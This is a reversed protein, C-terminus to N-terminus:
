SCSSIAYILYNFEYIAAYKEGHILYIQFPKTNYQFIAKQFDIVNSFDTIINENEGLNSKLKNKLLTIPGTGNNWILFISYHQMRGFIICGSVYISGINM